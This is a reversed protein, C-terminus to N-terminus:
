FNIQGPDYVTTSDPPITFESVISKLMGIDYDEVPTHKVNFSFWFRINFIQYGAKIFSGNTIDRFGMPM